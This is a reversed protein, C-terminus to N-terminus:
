IYLMKCVTAADSAYSLDFPNYLKNKKTFLVSTKYSNNYQM